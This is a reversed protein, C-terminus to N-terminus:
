PPCRKVGITPDFTFGFCLRYGTSGSIIVRRVWELIEERKSFPLSSFDDPLHLSIRRREAPSVDGLDHGCLARAQHPLKAKFYGEALRYRQEVRRL